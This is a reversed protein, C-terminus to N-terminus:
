LSVYTNKANQPKPAFGALEFNTNDSRNQVLSGQLGRPTKALLILTKPNQPKPTLGPWDQQHQRAVRGGLWLGGYWAPVGEHRLAVTGGHWWGAAMNAALRRAEM